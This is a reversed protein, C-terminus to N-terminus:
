AWASREFVDAANRIAVAYHEIENDPSLYKMSDAVFRLLVVAGATTAPKAEMVEYEADWVAGYAADKRAEIERYEMRQEVEAIVAEKRALEDHAAQRALDREAREAESLRRPRLREVFRNHEEDEPGFAPTFHADIQEHSRMEKGDLTVVREKRAAAM